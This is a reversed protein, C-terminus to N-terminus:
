IGFSIGMTMTFSHHHHHHGHRFDASIATIGKEPAEM